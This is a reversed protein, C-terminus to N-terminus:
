DKVLRITFFDTKPFDMRYINASDFYIGITSKDDESSATDTWYLGVSGIVHLQDEISLGGAPFFITNGKQSTVLRGSIGDIITWEWTCNEYLEIYDKETPLRWGEGWLAAISQADEYTFRGGIDSMSSAGVNHTAWKVRSGMSIAEAITGGITLVTDAATPTNASDAIIEVRDVEDMNYTISQGDKMHVIMRKQASMDTFALLLCM